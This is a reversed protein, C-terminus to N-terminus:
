PLVRSETKGIRRKIGGNGLLEILSESERKDGLFVNTTTTVPATMHATM